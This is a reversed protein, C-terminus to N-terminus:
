IMFVLDRIQPSEFFPDIPNSGAINRLSHQRPAAQPISICGTAVHTSDSNQLQPRQRKTNTTTSILPPYLL